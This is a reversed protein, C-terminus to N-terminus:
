GIGPGENAEPLKRFIEDWATATDPAALIDILQKTLSQAVDKALQFLLEFGGVASKRYYLRLQTRAGFTL